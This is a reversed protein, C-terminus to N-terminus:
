WLMRAAVLLLLLGFLRRLSASPLRHALAVGAPAAGAGAVGILIVAPWYLYGFGPQIVTNGWGAILFGTVGGLAIPWGCASAVAVARVPSFGNRILYPVNFSGGGIGMLASVAGILPGAFWWGRPKPHVPMSATQFALLMRAGILAALVAFIRTLAQGPLAAAAMAGLGAGITMAPALRAVASWDVAGKRTHFWVASASTLLMSGLSCAVAVAAAQETELGQLRLLATLAPVIVLGGGIGLLGAFLGALLGTLILLTFLLIVQQVTELSASIARMKFCVRM